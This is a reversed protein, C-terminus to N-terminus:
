FFSRSGRTISKKFCFAGNLQEDNYLSEIEVPLNTMPWDRAVKSDLYSNFDLDLFEFVNLGQTPKRQFNTELNKHVTYDWYGNLVVKELGNELYLDGEFEWLPSHFINLLTIGNQIKKLKEYIKIFYSVFM